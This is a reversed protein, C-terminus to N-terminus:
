NQQKGQSNSMFLNLLSTTRRSSKQQQEKSSSPGSPNPHPEVPAAHQQELATSKNANTKNFKFMEGYSFKSSLKTSQSPSSSIEDPNGNSHNPSGKAISIPSSNAANSTSPNAQISQTSSSGFWNGFLHSEKKSAQSHQQSNSPSPEHTAATMFSSAISQLDGVASTTAENLLDQHANPSLELDVDETTDGRYMEIKNKSLQQNKTKHKTPNKHIRVFCFAFLDFYYM